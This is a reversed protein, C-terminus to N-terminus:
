IHILSLVEAGNRTKSNRCNVSAFNKELLTKGIFIGLGLGTKSKDSTGFPKLYPEGIKSLIDRPYGNGDDEIIILLDSNNKNTYILESLILMDSSTAGYNLGHISLVNKGDLLKNIHSSVDFSKFEIALQDNHLATAGSNWRANMPANAAAIRKGNLFAIFGDDFKMRLTMTDILEPKDVDFAYRLYLSENENYMEARFNLMSSILSQYGSSREYGAGNVGRNWSDDNFNIQTWNEDDQDSIPVWGKVYNSSDVYADIEGSIYITITGTSRQGIADEIIYEITGSGSANEKAQFSLLGNPDNRRLGNKTVPSRNVTLYGLRSAKSRASVM